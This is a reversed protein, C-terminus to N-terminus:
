AHMCAPRQSQWAHGQHCHKRRASVGVFSYVQHAAADVPVQLSGMAEQMEFGGGDGGGGGGDGVGGDSSGSASSSNRAGSSHAAETTPAVYLPVGAFPPAQESAGRGNGSGSGSGSVSGSGSSGAQSSGGICGHAAAHQALQELFSRKRTHTPCAQTFCGAQRESSPLCACFQLSVATISCGSTWVSRRGGTAQRPVSDRRLLFWPWARPLRSQGRWGGCRQRRRRRPRRTRSTSAELSIRGPRM